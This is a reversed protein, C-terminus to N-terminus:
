HGVGFETGMLEAAGEIVIDRGIAPGSALVALAGEVRLVEVRRRTFTHPAIKEYVWQSGHIDYLISSWPIVLSESKTQLPIDIQVPLGPFFAESAPMDYYVDISAQSAHATRLNPIPNADIAPIHGGLTTLRAATDLDLRGTDGVFISAKVWYRNAASEAALSSGLIMRNRKTTDFAIQAEEWALKSREVELQSVVKRALATETQKFLSKAFDVQKSAVKVAADAEIQKRWLERILDPTHSSLSPLGNSGEQIPFVVEGRYSAYPTIPMLKVQKTEIALRQEAKETLTVTTLSEETRENVVISATSSLTDALTATSTAIALVSVLERITKM